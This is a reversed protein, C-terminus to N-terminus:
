ANIIEEIEPTTLRLGDEDAAIGCNGYMVICLTADYLFKGAESLAGYFESPEPM